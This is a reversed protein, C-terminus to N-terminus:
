LIYRRLDDDAVVKALREQVLAEDIVMPRSPVDAGKRGSGAGLERPAVGGPLDFLIEEMLTAM